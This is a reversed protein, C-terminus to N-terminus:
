TSTQPSFISTVLDSHLPLAPIPTAFPPFMLQLSVITPFLPRMGPVLALTSTLSLNLVLTTLFPAPLAPLPCVVGPRYGSLITDKDYFCHSAVPIHCVPKFLDESQLISFLSSPLPLSHPFIPVGTLPGQLIRCSTVTAQVVTTVSLPLAAVVVRDPLQCLQSEFRPRDSKLGM